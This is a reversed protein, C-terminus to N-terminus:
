NSKSSDDEDPKSVESGSEEAGKGPGSKEDEEQEVQEIQEITDPDPIANEFEELEEIDEATINLYISKQKLDKAITSVKVAGMAEYVNDKQANKTNVDAQQAESMQFLPKWRYEIDINLGLSAAMITDFYDLVPSYEDQQRSAISDYYNSQDGEGTANLGDASSGFLRTAPVDSAAALAKLMRDIVDPLGSFTFSKVDFEENKDIMLINNMNKMMKALAMRKQLLERQAPNSVMSMLNDIKMIDVNAETVMTAVGDNVSDYNILATLLRDLISDSFYNNRRFEDWPLPVGEFRLMRSAHIKITSENFRYFEPMGFNPDLPNSIPVTDAQSLRFRDISKVHHLGGKKIRSIDLPMDPSQGDDIDMVVFGTGYLRAWIHALTIHKRLQLRKEEKELEKILEPDDENTFERWERGMDKPIIEIIKAALWNTRYLANLEQRNSQASLPNDNRYINHTRKDKNTGMGTIFNQLNDFLEFRSDLIATNRYRNNKM